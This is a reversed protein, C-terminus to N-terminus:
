WFFITQSADDAAGAGAATTIEGYQDYTNLDGSTRVARLCYTTSAPASNDV